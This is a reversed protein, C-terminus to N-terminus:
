AKSWRWAWDWAALLRDSSRKRAFLNFAHKAMEPTMGISDDTAEILVEQNQVLIRLALHAGETTYKAANNLINALVQVLRKKDVSVLALQPVLLM